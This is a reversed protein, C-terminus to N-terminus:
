EKTAQIELLNTPDDSLSPSESLSPTSSTSDAQQIPVTDMHQAQQQNHHPYLQKLEEGIHFLIMPQGATISNMVAPPIWGKLDFQVVFTVLCALPVCSKIPTIVFGSTGMSARVIGKKKSVDPDKASHWGVIVSGNKQKHIHQLFCVDRGAVPFFPSFEFYNTSTTENLNHIQKSETIKPDWKKYMDM